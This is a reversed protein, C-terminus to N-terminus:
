LRVRVEVSHSVREYFIDMNSKANPFVFFLIACTDIRPNDIFDGPWKTFFSSESVLDKDLIFSEVVGRSKSMLMYRMVSHTQKLVASQSVLDNSDYAMGMYPKIISRSYNVGTALRVFTPYLDGPTRRMIEIIVPGTPTELFQVHLLGDVLGLSKALKQLDNVISNVQFQNILSPFSTASVRFTNPVYYEDDLFYSVVEGGTILSSLGHYKGELFEEIIVRKQKSLSFAKSFAREFSYLDRCISVGNGGTLDVPKVIVPFVINATARFAEELSKCDAFKPTRIGLEKLKARLLNKSHLIEANEPADFGPFGLKDAVKAAAIYALDHCSSILLDINRDVCIESLENVDTYDAEIYEDSFQHGIDFPRNGSTIVRFGLNKTEKIIPIDGLSGGTVLCLGRSRIM